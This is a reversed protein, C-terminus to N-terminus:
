RKEFSRSKIKWSFKVVLVVELPGLKRRVRDVMRRVDLNLDIPGMM